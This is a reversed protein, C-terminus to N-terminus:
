KKLQGICYDIEKVLEDIQENSILSGESRTIVQENAQETVSIMENIRTELASIGENSVGLQSTLNDIKNQLSEVKTREELLQSNVHSYKERIGDILKHINDSM